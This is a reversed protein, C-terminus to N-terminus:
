FAEYRRSALMLTGIMRDGEKMPITMWSQVGASKWIEDIQGGRESLRDRRVMIESVWSMETLPMDLITSLLDDPLGRYARLILRDLEVLYIGGMEAKVLQMTEVLCISLRKDLDITQLIARIVQHHSRLEALQHSTKNYLQANDVTQGLERGINALLELDGPSFGRPRLTILNMAGLLKGASLLPTSALTHIGEKIIHPALRETPYDAVDMVVPKGEAAARGSVGEGLKIRHVAKVFDESLGVQVRLRLTEGDPELLYIGGADFEMVEVTAKLADGLMKEIELSQSAIRNITYLASIDRHSRLIEEETRIREAEQKELSEAMKNFSHALQSLESVGYSLNARASLEGTELRKTTELLKNTQRLIFFSGFFWAAALSIAALLGLWIFNSALIRETGAFALSKTISISIYIKGGQTKGGITTFAYIHPSGDLGIAEAFGEGQALIVKFLTTEPITKGAWKEPDPYHSIITGNRDIVRFTGREPLKLETALQNMWALDLGVFVVAKVQGKRDLLPYSLPLVAKGTIRGIQYDGITFERTQLVHQFWPRDAFNVSGTAAPVSCFLNGDLGAIGFSTYGRYQTLLNQFLTDCASIDYTRVSPIQTITILIQRAREIVQEYDDAILKVIRLTNEEAEVIEHQRLKLGSYVTLVLAPTVAFLVLLLLRVRLSSFSFWKM